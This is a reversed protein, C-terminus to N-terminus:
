EFFDEEKGKKKGGEKGKEKGEKRWRRPGSEGSKGKEEGEKKM